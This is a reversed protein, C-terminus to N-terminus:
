PRRWDYRGEVIKQAIGRVKIAERVQERSPRGWPVSHDPKDWGLPDFVFSGSQGNEGRVFRSGTPWQGSLAISVAEELPDRPRGNWEKVQRRADMLALGWLPSDDSLPLIGRELAISTARQLDDEDYGRELARAYARKWTTLVSREVPANYTESCAHEFFDVLGDLASLPEGGPGGEGIMM